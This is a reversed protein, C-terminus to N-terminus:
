GAQTGATSALVAKQGAQTGPMGAISTAKAHDAHRPQHARPSSRRVEEELEAKDNLIPMEHSSLFKHGRHKASSMPSVVTNFVPELYIHNISNSAFRSSLYRLTNEVHETQMNVPTKQVNYEKGLGHALDSSSKTIGTSTKQASSTNTDDKNNEVNSTSKSRKSERNSANGSQGNGSGRVDDDQKPLDTM